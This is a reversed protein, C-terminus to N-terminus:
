KKRIGKNKMEDFEIIFFNLNDILNLKQKLEINLNDIIRRTIKSLYQMRWSKIILDYESTVDYEFNHVHDMIEGMYYNYQNQMNDM